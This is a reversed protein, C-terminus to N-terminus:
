EYETIQIVNNTANSMNGFGKSEINGVLLIKKNTNGTSSFIKSNRTISERVDIAYGAMPYGDEEKIEWNAGDAKAFPKGDILINNCGMIWNLKEIMWGPIGEGDNVFLKFQRYPRSSLITQNLVQDEYLVDKSKPLYKGFGGAVRISMVVGTEFLVDGYYSSNNYEFLITNAIDDIVHIPESILVKQVPNGAQLKLRYCGVPVSSLAVGVEYVFLNTNYTNRLLPNASLSIAAEANDDILSVEMPSFSAHFQLKILDNQSFLQCYGKQQEWPKIQENYVYDDFGKTAYQPLNTLGEEVFKIPNIFPIYIENAM